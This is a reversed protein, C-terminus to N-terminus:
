GPTLSPQATEETAEHGDSTLLRLAAHEEAEKVGVAQQILGKQQLYLAARYM